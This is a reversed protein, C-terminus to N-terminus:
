EDGKELLAYIASFAGQSNIAEIIFTKDLPLGCEKEVDKLIPDDPDINNEWKQFLGQKFAFPAGPKDIPSFVVRKEQGALLRDKEEISILKGGAYYKLVGEKAM